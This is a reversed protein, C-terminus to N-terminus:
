PPIQITPASSAAGKEPDSAQNPLALGSRSLEARAEVPEPQASLKDFHCARGRRPDHDWACPEVHGSVGGAMGVHGPYFSCRGTVWESGPLAMSAVRSVRNGAEIPRDAEVRAKRQGVVVAADGVAVEALIVAGDLVERLGKAEVGPVCVGEKM